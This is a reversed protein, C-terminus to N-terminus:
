ARPEATVREAGGYRVEDVALAFQRKWRDLSHQEEVVQRLPGGISPLGTAWTEDLGVIRDALQFADDADYHLPPLGDPLIEAVRRSATLVVRGAAMAELVSRSMDDDAGGDILVHARRLIEPVESPEVGGDIQVVAELAINKVLAELDRRHRVENANTSPGVIRLRTDLGHSRAIALARLVVPLGKEPATRGLAIM